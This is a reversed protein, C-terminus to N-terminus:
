VSLLVDQRREGAIVDELTTSHLHEFVQSRVGAVVEGLACSTRRCVPKAFLCGDRRMPGELAEYIDLLRIKARPKALAYGGNPGRRAELLGSRVLTRLVKSLHAISVGLNEAAAAASLPQDARALVIMAHLGIATAESMRVLEAM